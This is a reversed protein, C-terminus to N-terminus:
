TEVCALGPIQLSTSGIPGRLLAVPCGVEHLQQLARDLQSRLAPEQVNSLLHQLKELGATPLEPPHIAFPSYPDLRLQQLAHLKPSLYRSFDQQTM